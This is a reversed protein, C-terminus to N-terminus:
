KYVADFELQNSYPQYSAPLRADFYAAFSLYFAAIM